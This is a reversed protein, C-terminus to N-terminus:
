NKSRRQRELILLMFRKWQTYEKEVEVLPKLTEMPEVSNKIQDLDM